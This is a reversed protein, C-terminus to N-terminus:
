WCRLTTECSKVVDRVDRTRGSEIYPGLLKLLARLEHLEFAPRRVSEKTKGDLKPRNDLRHYRKDQTSQPIFLHQYWQPVYHHVTSNNKSM